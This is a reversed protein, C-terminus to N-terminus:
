VILMSFLLQLAPLLFGTGDPLLNKVLFGFKSLNHAYVSKVCDEGWLEPIRFEHMANESTIPNQPRFPKSPSM